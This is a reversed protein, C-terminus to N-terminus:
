FFYYLIKVSIWQKKIQFFFSKLAYCANNEIIIIMPVELYVASQLTEIFAGEEIAGDGSVVITLGKDKKIKKALAVGLSVPLNNALINSTYIISKKPNNLNMSGCKGQGLGSQLLNYEDILESILSGQALHYHINRHSCVLVDKGEEIIYSVSEALLEHGLGLHIPIKFKKLKLYENIILQCYRSYIISYLHKDINNITLKNM